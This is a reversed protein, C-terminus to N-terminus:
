EVRAQQRARLDTPSTTIAEYERPSVHVAIPVHNHGICLLGEGRRFRTIMKTEEETLNLINQVLRAEQDEMQMIFKIRCSDLIGKGYKGGDLAMMDAMGQSTVGAVGGQSRILKVMRMTYDAALPNSNAGLLKWLEDSLLATGVDGNQVTIDTAFGTAAYVTALQLDDPIDTLDIVIYPNETDVNTHGGMSAASGSVYRTLIVSLHKTEQKERLIDYWEQIVPMEKITVGDEEFLSANDFTIGRRGYCEILSADIYNMDEESLNRKQLSYWVSLWSVKEALLSEQRQTGGNQAAYPSAKLRRIDMLGICDPSSPGLKIFQGGVAECLPRYEHGKEPVIYIVKRQQERLRKGISQLLTSKGAGSNGFAAFNGNTYKYDDYLDIFVPSRNYLNLGLFIGKQDSLEFSAFPFSAAVGSTLANRRSKREIDPDSILLPLFSLFAAEHKYECRKALMDSAVCLTEVATVRQELTDPDDAIVEILTHMYYFDQGERNMGEKLYLGAGIADGLEEFDQRTDGVDRMRSRNIMTTQGIANVTKERPQKVLYFSLSVGEGAEILPTLWGKGVVTSYGYGSIYLYAHCVGDILLYDPHHTDIDPPAILDPITTAGAELRSLPSAEKRSFWKRKKKGASEAAATDLAKLAEEDYVGHVMGLMDFVGDPLRLHQSTHKNILKYFLELIFNDAYEPELVAVGCRDLYRRAVEAKENLVAAIAEPTHDPAKMSPDYSFSLFFRHTLAEREVLQPVYDMSEELMLRCQENTERELYGRLLKLYGDLDFPQTLVNIQLNAPAIRLYAAFGEIAASKDMSSMTYFNVPLLELIKVFRKDRTVVVGQVIDKIPLWAQISGDYAGSRDSIGTVSGGFIANKLNM